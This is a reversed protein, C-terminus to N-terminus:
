DVEWEDASLIPDTIKGKVKFVGELRGLFQVDEKRVPVVKVVARGRKTVVVPEGSACVQDMVALCKAKFASAPMKKM